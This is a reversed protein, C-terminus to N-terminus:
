RVTLRIRRVRTGAYSAFLLLGGGLLALTLPEPVDAPSNQSSVSGVQSNPPTAAVQTTIMGLGQLQALLSPDNGLESVLAMWYNMTAINEASTWPQSPDPQSPFPLQTGPSFFWGSLDSPPLDGFMSDPFPFNSGGADGIMDATVVRACPFCLLLLGTFWVPIPLTKINKV